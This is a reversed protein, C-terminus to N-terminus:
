RITFTSLRLDGTFVLFVEHKGRAGALAATVPAYAYKDGTSAVTATGILRGHVPNDLRIQVTATGADMRSASASFTRVGRGLDAGAFRLWSGAVTGVADGSAKSLDVLSTGSYDDADAARTTRGLQRAPITEGAVFLRARQRIDASSAGVMLDYSSAEVVWKNRTVDWHALDSAKLRLTVTGTRGAALHVKQFGALKRLPEVDRSRQQHTYLQVVEDGARRGTNTVRVSV